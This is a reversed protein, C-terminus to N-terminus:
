LEDVVGEKGPAEVVAVCGGGLGVIGGFAALRDHDAVGIIGVAVVGVLHGANDAARAV